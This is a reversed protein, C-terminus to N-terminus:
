LLAIAIKKVLYFLGILAALIGLLTAIPWEDYFDWFKDLWSQEYANPRSDLMMPSSLEAASVDTNVEAGGQQGFATDPSQIPVAMYDGTTMTDVSVGGGQASLVNSPPTAWAWSATVMLLVAVLLQRIDHLM